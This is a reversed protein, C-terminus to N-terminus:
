FLLFIYTIYFLFLFLGKLRGIKKGILMIPLLAASIALMWLIDNNLISPNITVPKIIATIGLIGLINFLNSGVLNGISIDTEKRFAAIVSTILEPISTGFAVVSLAIIRESIGFSRSIGITGTLFWESGLMLGGVGIAIMLLSKWVKIRSEAKLDSDEESAARRNELRSKIILGANFIVLFLVLFVGETLGLEFNLMFVYCLISAAMMMPWDIRLSDKSVPIPFILTTLGLILSINAINSGVVNGISIDPHGQLAAKASILLEPASTGFSVITMGVVLVSINFKLALAVAGKVLVEGGVILIALGAILLLYDM